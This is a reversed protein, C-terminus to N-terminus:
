AETVQKLLLEIDVEHLVFATTLADLLKEKSLSKQMTELNRRITWARSGEVAMDKTIM